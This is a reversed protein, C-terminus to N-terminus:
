FFQCIELYMHQFLMGEQSRLVTIMCHSRISCNSQDCRNFVGVQITFTGGGSYLTGM